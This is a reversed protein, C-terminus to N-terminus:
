IGGRVSHSLTLLILRIESSGIFVLSRGFTGHLNVMLVLLSCFFWRVGVWVGSLFGPCVFKNKASYLMVYPKQLASQMSVVTSVLLTKRRVNVFM